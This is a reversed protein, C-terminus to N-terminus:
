ENEFGGWKYKKGIYFEKLKPTAGFLGFLYRKLLKSDKQVNKFDSLSYLRSLNHEDKETFYIQDRRIEEDLLLIDHTNCVLQANNTNKSISNFMMVLERVLLPHLGTDIEDIFIVSGNELAKLIPGAIEFMKKTGASELSIPFCIIESPEKDDGYCYRYTKLNVSWKSFNNGNAPSEQKTDIDFNIINFDAKQLFDLVNDKGDKNGEIYDITSTLISQTDETKFIELKFFWRGVIMALENNGWVAWYLFLNDRRTNKTFNKVNNMEKSLVIDNFDPSSRTYLAKRRKTKKYLYEKNVENHLLEFGYVFVIGDEIFEVEFTRPINISNEKFAFRTYMRIIESQPKPDSIIIARMYNLASILNTKGSANAGFIVANKLLDGYETKITNFERYESDATARMSFVSEEYFSMFNSFSFGILM